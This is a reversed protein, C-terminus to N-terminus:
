FPQDDLAHCHHTTPRPITKYTQNCEPCLLNVEGSMAEQLYRLTRRYYSLKRPQWARPYIHNVEWPVGHLDCDCEACRPGLLEFLQERLKGARASQWGSNTAFGRYRSKPTKSATLSQDSHTM